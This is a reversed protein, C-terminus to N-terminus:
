FESDLELFNSDLEDFAKKSKYKTIRKEIKGLRTREYDLIDKHPICARVFTTNIEDEFIVKEYDIKSKVFTPLNEDTSWKKLIDKEHQDKVNKYKEYTIVEVIDDIKKIMKYKTENKVFDIYDMGGNKHSFTCIKDDIPKMYWSPAGGIDVKSMEDLTKTLMHKALAEVCVMGLMSLM